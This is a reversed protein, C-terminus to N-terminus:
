LLFRCRLCWTELVDPSLYLRFMVCLQIFFLPRYLRHEVPLSLTYTSDLQVEHVFVLHSPASRFHHEFFGLECNVSEITDTLL